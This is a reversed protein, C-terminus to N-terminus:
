CTAEVVARKPVLDICSRAIDQAADPRGIKRAAEGMDALRQRDQYFSQILEACRESTFDANNVLIAAGQEVFLEGNARQHDDAAFPYPVLISPLGCVAIELIGAGARSIVLDARTYIAAMDDFFAAAEGVGAFKTYAEKVTQEDLKGTQHIFYLGGLIGKLINLAGVVANNITRAGQSGGVVAITLKNNQGVQRPKVARISARVPNGTLVVNKSTFYKESDPFSIFIRNAFKGLVRNTLGPIANQEQLAVPIRLLKAMLCVAGAVYGGTGLVIDPEYSHLIRLAQIFGLPLKVMARLRAVINKGKFGAAPIYAVSYGRKPVLDSEMGRRTGVFLVRTNQVQRKLEDAIALGPFIHGGTGGGAIIVKM